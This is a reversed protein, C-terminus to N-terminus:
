EWTGDGLRAAAVAGDDVTMAGARECGAYRERDAILAPPPTGRPALSCCFRFSRGPRKAKADADTSLDTFARLVAGRRLSESIRRSGKVESARWVNHAAVRM